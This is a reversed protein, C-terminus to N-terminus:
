GRRGGLRKLASAASVAAWFASVSVSITLLMIQDRRRTCLSWTRWGLHRRINKQIRKLYYFTKGDAGGSKVTLVALSRDAELALQRFHLEAAPFNAAADECVSDQAALATLKRENAGSQVQSGERQTYHYLVDPLYSVRGVRKLVAYLVLLDESYFVTEDFPCQRLLDARYLKGWPVLNFPEGRALCLVAEEQTYVQAPARKLDLGDAGCASVDAGAGTLSRYLKELLGPEVRDDSDVFSIFAGNARRVGENRAASPGRNQPFHSVRIRTDRSALADCIQGSRDTSGDDVLIVEFNPWTQALVSNLCPEIFREVNYVPMVVSILPNDM